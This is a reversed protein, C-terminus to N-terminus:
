DLEFEDDDPFFGDTSDEFLTTVPAGSITEDRIRGLIEQAVDTHSRLYERAADRGQAICEENPSDMKQYYFFSGAKRIVENAVAQNLLDGEISIGDGYLM